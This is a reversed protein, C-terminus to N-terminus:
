RELRELLTADIKTSGFQAILKDYNIGDDGGEVTWPDVKQGGRLEELERQGRRWGGAAGEEWPAAAAGVGPLRWPPVPVTPM